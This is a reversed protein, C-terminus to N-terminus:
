RQILLLQILWTLKITGKNSPNPWARQLKRWDGVSLGIQPSSQAGVKIMPKLLSCIDPAHQTFRHSKQYHIKNINLKKLLSEKAPLKIATCPIGSTKAALHWEQFSGQVPLAIALWGGPTLASFWEKIQKTPQNLWHLAFNSAILAPQKPWPPLGLNLDWLQTQSNPRNHALMKQSGDVRLVSQNPNLTELAEALLGTGAGLDVWIGKPISERSCKKALRWAFTRQLQAEKDYDSSAEGFNKLITKPWNTTM